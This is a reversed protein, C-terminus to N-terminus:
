KEKRTRRTAQQKNWARALVLEKDFDVKKGKVFKREWGLSTILAMVTANQPRRTDGYFLNKVTAPNLSAMTAVHYLRKFLGEKEIIYRLEGIVPDKDIFRYTRLTKYITM